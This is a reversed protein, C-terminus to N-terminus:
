EESQQDEDGAEDEQEGPFVGSGEEVQYEAEVAPEVADGGIDGQHPVLVRGETQILALTTTAGWYALAALVCLELAFRLLLNSSKLVEV